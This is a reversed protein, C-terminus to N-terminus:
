NLHYHLEQFRQTWITWSEEHRAVPSLVLVKTTRVIYILLRGKAMSSDAIGIRKASSVLTITVSLLRSIKSVFSLTLILITSLHNLDLRNDM